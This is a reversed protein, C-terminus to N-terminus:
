KIYGLKKLYMKAPPVFHEEWNPIWKQYYGRHSTKDSFKDEINKNITDEDVEIFDSLQKVIKDRDDIIDEFRIVLIPIKDKYDDYFLDWQMMKNVWVDSAQRIDTTAWYPDINTAVKHRYKSAVVDRGDRYIYILKFDIGERLMANIRHPNPPQPVKDGIVEFRDGFLEQEFLLMLDKKNINNHVKNNLSSIIADYDMPIGYKEMRKAHNGKLREAFDKLADTNDKNMRFVNDYLQLEYSVFMEPERTLIAALISTGSRPQGRLLIRM